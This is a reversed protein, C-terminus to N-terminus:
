MSVCFQPIGTSHKPVPRDALMQWPKRSCLSHFSVFFHYRLSGDRKGVQDARTRSQHVTNTQRQCVDGRQRHRADGGEGARDKGPLADDDVGGERVAGGAVPGDGDPEARPSGARGGWSMSGARQQRRQIQAKAARRRVDAQRAHEQDEDPARPARGAPELRRAQLLRELADHQERELTAHEGGHTIGAEQSSVTRSPPALGPRRMARLYPGQERQGHEDAFVGAVGGDAEAEAEPLGEREGAVV